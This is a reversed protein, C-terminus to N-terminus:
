HAAVHMSNYKHVPGYGLVSRKKDVIVVVIIIIIIALEPIREGGIFELIATTTTSLGMDGIAEKRKM